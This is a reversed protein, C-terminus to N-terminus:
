PAAVPPGAPKPLSIGLDSVTVPTKGDVALFLRKPAAPLKLTSFRGKNVQIVVADEGATLTMQVDKAPFARRDILSITKGDALEETTVLFTEGLNKIAVVWTSGDALELGLMSMLTADGGGTTLRFTGEIQWPPPPLTRSIRGRQGSIANANDESPVWVADGEKTWDDLTSKFDPHTLPTAADFEFPGAAPVPPPAPASVPVAPPAVVGPTIVAPAPPAAVPPPVPTPAPEAVPKALPAAAVPTALTPEVPKGHGKLLLGIIAGAAIVGLGILLPVKVGGGHGPERGALLDDIEAVLARYSDPRGERERALMRAILENVGRSLKANHNSAKPVEGSVKTTVIQALTKGGFASKGTLAHFLVCGLGYIDTRFDVNDPDDFQEPAMTAPTGMVVGSLTLSMDAHQKAPRALGLDVLKAIFPFPDDAAVDERRTLLVNEPKVDRHIIGLGNAHGLALALDRVVRLAHEQDLAGHAEIWDRLTPGDIFEMILYPQGEGTIGASYCAVIHPHSLAALIKAERQFRRVYEAGANGSDVLLLKVAVQRDIYPQRGRFVVGMGGRGIEAEIDVDPITPKPTAPRAASSGSSAPPAPTAAGEVTTHHTRPPKSAPDDGM